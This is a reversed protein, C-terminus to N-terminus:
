GVATRSRPPRPTMLAVQTRLGLDRHRLTAIERGPQVAPRAPSLHDGLAAASAGMDAVILALGFSRVGAAPAEPRQAPGVVELVVEGVRYFVQVMPDVGPLRHDRRRREDLGVAAAGAATRELDDTLLVLHDVRVAGNPHEAPHAAGRDDRVTPFGDLAAAAGTPLHRLSWGVVAEGAAAGVLQLRVGGVRCTADSDVTFGATAWTAPEEAIEITVVEPPREPSM